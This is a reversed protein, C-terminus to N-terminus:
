ELEYVPQQPLMHVCKQTNLPFQLTVVTGTGPHSDIAVKGGHDRMIRQVIVMGLGNGSAKTTSFPAFINGIEDGEIGHGQDAFYVNLYPDKRHIKIKLKGCHMAEYANKIVNFFAQRVQEPDALIKPLNKAVDLEVAINKNDLMVQQVALTGRVLETIDLCEFKPAQPRLASLFHRIINDLRAIEERCIAVRQAIKERKKLELNGLQKEILQLHINLANLPNGIEHAVESALMFISAVREDEVRRELTRQSDTIDVFIVIFHDRQGELPSLYLRVHRVEPYAIDFERSVTLTELEGKNNLPLLQSLGPVCKWLVVDAGERLGLLRHAAHNFYAVNGNAAVILVAEEVSNLVTELLKRERALRVILTGKNAEDLGDLHELVKDIHRNM